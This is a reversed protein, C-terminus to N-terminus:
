DTFRASVELLKKLSSRGHRELILDGNAQCIVLPVGKLSDDEFSRMGGGLSPSSMNKKEGVFRTRIRADVLFDCLPEFDACHGHTVNALLERTFAKTGDLPFLRGATLIAFEVAILLRLENGQGARRGGVPARLPGHFQEGAFKHFHL